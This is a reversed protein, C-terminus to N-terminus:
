CYLTIPSFSIRCRICVPTSLSSSPRNKKSALGAIFIPTDIFFMVSDEAKRRYSEHGSDELYTEGDSKRDGMCYLLFFCEANHRSLLFHMAFVEENRRNIQDGHRVRTRGNNEYGGYM